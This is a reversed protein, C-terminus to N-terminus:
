LWFWLWHGLSCFAHGLGGVFQAPTLPTLGGVFQAPTLPTIKM